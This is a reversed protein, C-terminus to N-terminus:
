SSSSEEAKFAMIRSLWLAGPITELLMFFRSVLALTTAQELTAGLQMYLTAYVVERVGYGNFSVPLLTVLYVIAAVGMVQFLNVPIGLSRALLWVAIYVVFISVWSIGFAGALVLPQRAWNAFADLFRKVMRRALGVAKHWLPFGAAAPFTERQQVLEFIQDGFTIWSFPLFTLTAAVNIARDVVVSAVSLTRNSTFRLLSIIRFADGGITSPLFNSAFAGAFVTRAVEWFPMMVDQARLLLYWRLANCMMGTIVLILCVPWLWVPFLRLNEWTTPWDQKSLLWVFLFTSIVTGLTQLIQRLRKRNQDPPTQKNL